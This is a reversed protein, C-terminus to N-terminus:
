LMNWGIASSCEGADQSRKGIGNYNTFIRYLPHNSVTAVPLGVKTGTTTAHSYDLINKDAGIVEKLVAEINESSYLGDKWYSKVLGVGKSLFPVQLTRRRQFAREIIQPFIHISEDLSRGNIFVDMAIIAGQLPLSHSTRSNSRLVSRHQCWFSSQLFASTPNPAWPPGSDAEAADIAYHRTRRRWGYLTCCSGSNPSASECCGRKATRTLLSLL